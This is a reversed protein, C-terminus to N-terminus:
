MAMRRYELYCEARSVGLAGPAAEDSISMVGEVVVGFAHRYAELTGHFPPDDHFSGERRV